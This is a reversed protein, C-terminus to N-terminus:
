TRNRKLPSNKESTASAEPVDSNSTALRQQASSIISANFILCEHSGSTVSDGIALVLSLWTAAVAVPRM